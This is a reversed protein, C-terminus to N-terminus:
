PTQGLVGRIITAEAGTPALDLYRRLTAVHAPDGAGRQALGLLLVIRPDDPHQRALPILLTVAENPSGGRTLLWAYQESGAINSPDLGLVKRYAPEAAALDGSQDLASAYALWSAVDGPRDQTARRLTGLDAGGAGPPRTTATGGAFTGTVVAGVTRSGLSGSLTVAILGAFLLAAAGLALRAPLRRPRLISGTSDSPPATDPGHPPQQEEVEPFPELEAAVDQLDVPPASSAVPVPHDRLATALRLRADEAEPLAAPDVEADLRASRLDALAATVPESWQECAEPAGAALADAAQLQVATVEDDEARRPTTARRSLTRSVQWGGTLLVAIPLLWVLWGIGRRPPDLLIWDGYRATFYGRVQDATAGTALQREVEQRMGAAIPSPSDAISLGQCTPCRLSDEVAVARDQPTAPGGSRTAQWVGVAVLLLLLGGAVAVAPRFRRSRM